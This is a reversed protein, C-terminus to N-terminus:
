IMLSVDVILHTYDIDTMMDECIKGGHKAALNRMEERQETSQVGSIAM